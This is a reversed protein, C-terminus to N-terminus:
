TFSFMRIVRYHNVDFGPNLVVVLTVIENVSPEPYGFALSERVAPHKQAIAELETPAIHDM